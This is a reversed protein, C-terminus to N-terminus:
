LKGFITKGILEELEIPPETERIKGNPPILREASGPTIRVYKEGILGKTRISAIADEQLRVGPNIRMAVLAQYGENLSIQSVRGIEVGAIEVVAGPKLGGVSSFDAYLTYGSSGILELKGLKISLYGLAVVGALVFVGVAAEISLKKMPKGM